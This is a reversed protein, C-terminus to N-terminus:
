PSAEAFRQNLLLALQEASLRDGAQHVGGLLRGQTFIIQWTGFFSIVKAEPLEPLPAELAAGDDMLFQQYARALEQAEAASAQASVFGSLEFEGIEYDAVFLHALKQCGLGDALYLRPHGGVRHVQPLYEIEPLDAPDVSTDTVFLRAMTRM